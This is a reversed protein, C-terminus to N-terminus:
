AVLDSVGYLEALTRLNPPVNEFEVRRGARAAERRWELLLSVASSDVDTVGSLDVVVHPGTIKVASEALVATVNRMTVPGSVRCRGNECEIPM